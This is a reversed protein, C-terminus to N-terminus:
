HPPFFLSREYRPSARGTSCETLSLCEWSATTSSLQVFSHSDAGPVMALTVRLLPSALKLRSRANTYDEPRGHRYLPQPNPEEDDADSDHDMKRVTGNVRGNSYQSESSFRRSEPGVASHHNDPDVAAADDGPHAKRQALTRRVLGVGPVNPMRANKPLISSVIQPPQLERQRFAQFEKKHDTGHVHM